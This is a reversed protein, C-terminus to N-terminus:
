CGCYNLYYCEVPWLHLCPQWLIGAVEGVALHHLTQWSAFGSEEGVEVVRLRYTRGKACLFLSISLNERDKIILSESATIITQDGTPIKEKARIYVKAASFSTLSFLTHITTPVHACQM